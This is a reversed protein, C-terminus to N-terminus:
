GTSYGAVSGAYLCSGITSIVANDLTLNKIDGTVYGFLGAYETKISSIQMGTITHGNGDFTGTFPITSNEGIPAWGCGNDWDGGPATDETLDLDNMLIYNKDLAYRIAYLDEITYVGTYGEPVEDAATAVPFCGCLLLVSMLVCLFHKCLKNMM